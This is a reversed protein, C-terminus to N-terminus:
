ANALEKSRRAAAEVGGRIAESMGAAEMADLAAITTGGPSCVAQKFASVDQGTEILTKATGFVTFLALREALARDLGCRRGGDAMAEVLAAVYAPGSGSVACVADLDAEDVVVAEGLCVFLSRVTEVDEPTACAGGAVGTAGAGVQLPLNPMTRVVRSGPALMGELRSTTVGAAISVFLPGAAGGAYARKDALSAVVADIAQPKVAFVVIDARMIESGDAVCTVGHADHLHARREEGPEAVVISNADLCAAAGERAAIWGAVIAEGMKGGGILAIRAGALSDQACGM